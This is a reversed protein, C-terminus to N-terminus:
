GGYCCRFSHVKASYAYAKIDEDCAFISQCNNERQIIHEAYDPISVRPSRPM